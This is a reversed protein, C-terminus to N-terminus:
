LYQLCLLVHVKFVARSLKISETCELYCCIVAKIFNCIWEDSHDETTIFSQLKEVRKILDVAHHHRSIFYSKMLSLEFYM